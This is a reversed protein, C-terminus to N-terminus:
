RDRAKSPRLSAAMASLGDHLRTRPNWGLDQRIRRIDAVLYRIDADSPRDPGGARIPLDRGMVALALRALEAVSTGTGSGVNYVSVAEAVPGLAARVVADAVDDVYCYDRVPRLDALVLADRDRAQDMLSGVVSGSAMGPGYVSFPRLIVAELGIVPALAAVLAEAGLKAAGYPSRPQTRQAEDVPNREPQGYVEASSLHVFRRVDTGRCADLITATGVVHTKAHDVPVRFSDRVSPPGAIHVITEIGDVLGEVARADTIEAFAPLSGPTPRVPGSSPPGILGRVPVGAEVLRRTVVSGIFGGAGTVLVASAGATGM